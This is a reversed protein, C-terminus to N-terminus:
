LLEELQKRNEIVITGRRLSVIKEKSLKSLARAVVERASNIEQAVQEQTIRLEQSGDSNCRDLLFTALRTELPVFLIEEFVSMVESLKETALEYSFSKVKLNGACLRAYIPAPVIMLTTKALAMMQTEQRIKSLVCSAAFVCYDDDVLKFLTVERGEPSVIYTRIEGSLVYVMGLCSGGGDCSGHLIQGEDYNKVVVSFRIMEQEDKNLLDWFPLKSVEAKM